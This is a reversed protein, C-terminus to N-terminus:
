PSSIPSIVLPTVHISSLLPDLASGLEDWCSSAQLSSFQHLLILLLSWHRLPVVLLVHPGSILHLPTTSPVLGCPLSPRLVPWSSAMPLRSLPPMQSAAPTFVQNSHLSSFPSSPNSLSLISLEEAFPLTTTPQSIARM